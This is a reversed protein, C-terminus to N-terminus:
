LQRPCVWADAYSIWVLLYLVLAVVGFAVFGILFRRNKRRWQGLLIGGALVNAMPLARVALVELRNANLGTRLDYYLTRIAGSNLATIAIFVLIWAHRFHRLKM